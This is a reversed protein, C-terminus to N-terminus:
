HRLNRSERRAICNGAARVFRQRLEEDRISAAASILEVPVSEVGARRAPETPPTRVISGPDIRFELSKIMHRGLLRNVQGLLEARMSRLQNQWIADAVGVVLTQGSFRLPVAQQRLGEGVARTWAIKAAMEVMEPNGGSADLLSPLLQILNNM